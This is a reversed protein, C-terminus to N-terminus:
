SSGIAASQRSSIAASALTPQYRLNGLVNVSWACEYTCNCGTDKIWKKASKAESDRWLKMFDFDYDRLNGLPRDLVECPYVTADSGVVGFLSGAHCDSIYKPEMYTEAIADYVIENKRNMMRGQLTGQDYGEIRGTRLDSCIRATLQKYASAIQTKDELPIRYVGEDRVATATISRVGEVEVLHEYLDMVVHHNTQSVTIGINTMARDSITRVNRYSTLANEYLRSVKRVQDHEQPFDDISFSLIVRGTSFEGLLSEAFSVCRDPFAGNSTVFISEIDTNAFYCRGIDVIDARLFPEGGTLNVNILSPGLSRTMRDIEEISM